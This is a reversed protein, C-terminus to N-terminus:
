GRKINEQEMRAIEDFLEKNMQMKEMEERSPIIQENGQVDTVPKNIGVGGTQMNQIENETDEYIDKMTEPDGTFYTYATNAHTLYRFTKHYCNLLCVKENRALEDDFFNNKQTKFCLDGCKLTIFEKSKRVM